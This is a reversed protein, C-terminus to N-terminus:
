SKRAKKLAEMMGSCLPSDDATGFEPLPFSPDVGFEPNMFTGTVNLPGRSSLLSFDKPYPKVTLDMREQGLDIIGWGKFKTDTTDILFPKITAIGKRVQLDAYACILPVGTDTGLFVAASEVFDLGALEVLLADFHGETMILYLGGDSSAFWEALSGGQMWLTARGGLIGFSEDAVEFSALLEKLNIQHFNTALKAQVPSHNAKVYLNMAVTGQAVGYNLRTTQLHGDELIMNLEIHDLPIDNTQVHKARYEVDADTERLKTFNIPKDPLLTNREELEEAQARQDPSATEEPDPPAGILGALDDFDLKDSHLRAFIMPREGGTTVRLTGAVDSDGVTGDLESLNFTQQNEPKQERLVRAQVRYPPLRPLPIGIYDGLRSPDPGEVTVIATFSELPILQHVTGDIGITTEQVQVRADVELSQYDKLAERLSGTSVSVNLPKDQYEVTGTITM